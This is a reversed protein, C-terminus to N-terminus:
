WASVSFKTQEATFEGHIGIFHGLVWCKSPEGGANDHSLSRIEVQQGGIVPTIVGSIAGPFKWHPQSRQTHTQPSPPTHLLHGPQKQKLLGHIPDLIDWFIMRLRDEEQRGPKQM